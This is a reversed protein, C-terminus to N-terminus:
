ITRTSGCHKDIANRPVIYGRSTDFVRINASPWLSGTQTEAKCGPVIINLEVLRISQYWIQAIKLCFYLICLPGSLVDVVLVVLGEPRTHSM